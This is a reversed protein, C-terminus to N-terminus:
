RKEDQMELILGYIFTVFLALGFALFTLMISSSFLFGLSGIVEGLYRVGVWLIALGIVFQCLLFVLRWTRTRISARMSAIRVALLYHFVVVGSSIFLVWFVFYSLSRVWQPLLPELGGESLFYAIFLPLVWMLVFRRLRAPTIGSAGSVSSVENPDFVKNAIRSYDDNRRM